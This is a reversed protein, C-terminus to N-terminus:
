VSVTCSQAWGEGEDEEEEGLGVGVGLGVEEASGVGVMTEAEESVELAPGCGVGDNMGTWGTHGTPSSNLSVRHQLTSM